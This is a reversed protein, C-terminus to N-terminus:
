VNTHNKYVLLKARIRLNIRYSSGHRYDTFNDYNDDWDAVTVTLHQLHLYPTWDTHSPQVIDAVDSFALPLNLSHSYREPCCCGSRRFNGFSRGNTISWKLPGSLAILRTHAHPCCSKRSIVIFLQRLNRIKGIADAKLTGKSPSMKPIKSGCNLVIPFCFFFKTLTCSHWLRVSM